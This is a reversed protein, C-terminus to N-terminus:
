SYAKTVNRQKMEDGVMHMSLSPDAVHSVKSKDLPQSSKLAAQKHQTWRAALYEQHPTVQHRDSSSDTTASLGGQAATKPRVRQVEKQLLPASHFSVVGAM